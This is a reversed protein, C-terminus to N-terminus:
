TWHIHSSSTHILSGQRDFLLRLTTRLQCDIISCAGIQAVEVPIGRPCGQLPCRELSAAYRPGGPPGDLQRISLHADNWEPYHEQIYTRIVLVARNIKKPRGM